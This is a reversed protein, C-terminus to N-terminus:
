LNRPNSGRAQHWLNKKHRFRASIAEEEQL